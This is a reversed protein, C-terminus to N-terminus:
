KKIAKVRGFYTLRKIKDPMLRGYIDVYQIGITLQSLAKRAEFRAKKFKPSKTNGTLEILLLSESPYLCMENINSMYNKWSINDNLVPMWDIINKKDSVGNTVLMKKIILPGVGKNAIEVYLRDSHDGVRIGLIPQVTKYNHERQIQLARYTFYISTASVILALLAIFANIVAIMLNLFDTNEKTSWLIKLIELIWYM